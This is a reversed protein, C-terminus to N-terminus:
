RVSDDPAILDRELARTLTVLDARMRQRELKIATAAIKTMGVQLDRDLLQAEEDSAIVERVHGCDGCRLRIWWHTDDSESWRVPNVVDSACEACDVLRRAGAAPQLTPGVVWRLLTRFRSRAMGLPEVLAHRHEM